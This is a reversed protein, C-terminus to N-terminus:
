TPNAPPDPKRKKMQELIERLMIEENQKREEDSLEAAESIKSRKKPKGREVSGGDPDAEAWQNLQEIFQGPTYFGVNTLQGPTEL